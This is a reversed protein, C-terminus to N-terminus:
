STPLAQRCVTVLGKRSPVASGAACILSILGERTGAFDYAGLSPTHPPSRYESFPAGQGGPRASNQINEDTARAAEQELDHALDRAIPEWCSIVTHRQVDAHRRKTHGQHVIHLLRARQATTEMM